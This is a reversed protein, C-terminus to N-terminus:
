SPPDADPFFRFRLRVSADYPVVITSADASWQDPVLFLREGGQVLLRLGHYRYRYVQQEEFPALEQLQIADNGPFLREQTDLVVAPLSTLDAALARAQGRGWWEAVTATAWFTGAVMVVVLLVVVARGERGGRLARATSAAYAALGAGISLVVPTALPALDWAGLLGWLLALAIGALLLVIGTWAIASVTRVRTAAEATRLRRRLMRHGVVLGAAAILIIIVPVFLAGPSRMAFAQNSLGLVDVDIGFYAFFTRSSVYGFYFLLGTILTVPAVFSSLFGMWRDFALGGPPALPEAPAGKEDASVDPDPAAAVDQPVPAAAPVDYSAPVPEAM